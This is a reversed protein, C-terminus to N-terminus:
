YQYKRRIRNLNTLFLWFFITRVRTTTHDVSFKPNRSGYKTSWTTIVLSRWSKAGALIRQEKWFLVLLFIIWLESESATRRAQHVLTPKNEHVKLELFVFVNEIHFLNEAKQRRSRRFKIQATLVRHRISINQQNYKNIEKSSRHPPTVECLANSQKGSQTKEKHGGESSDKADREGNETKDDRGRIKM